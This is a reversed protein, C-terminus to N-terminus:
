GDNKGGKEFKISDGFYGELLEREQEREFWTDYEFDTDFKQRSDEKELRFKTM